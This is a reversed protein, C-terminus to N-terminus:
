WAPSKLALEVGHAGFRNGWAVTDERVAWCGKGGMGLKPPACWRLHGRIWSAKGSSRVPHSRGGRPPGKIEEEKEWSRPGRRTM